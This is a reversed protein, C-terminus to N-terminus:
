TKCKTAGVVLKLLYGNLLAAAEHNNKDFKVGVWDLIRHTLHFTEHAIISLTLCSPTFFLAFNGNNDYSCLAQYDDHPTKGFYCSMRKRAKFIDKNVIIWLTANYIPITYIRNM